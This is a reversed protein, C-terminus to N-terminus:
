QFMLVINDSLRQWLNGSDINELAVLPQKSLVTDGLKIEVHGFVQGKEIPATINPEVSMQAKISNRKGRPATIYLDEALGLPLKDKAGKWIRMETLPKMAEHLKFTEYFRFGYNLLKRSARARANESSTGLV